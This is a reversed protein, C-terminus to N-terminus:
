LEDRFGSGRDSEEPSCAAGAGGSVSAVVALAEGERGDRFFAEADSLEEADSDDGDVDGTTSLAAEGAGM